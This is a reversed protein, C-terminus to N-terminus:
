QTMGNKSVTFVGYNFSIDILNKFSFVFKSRCKQLTSFAKNKLFDVSTLMLLEKKLSTSLWRAIPVEFGQKKGQQFSEPFLTSHYAKL